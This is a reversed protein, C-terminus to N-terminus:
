AARYRLSTIYNVARDRGIQQYDEDSPLLTRDQKQTVSRRLWFAVTGKYHRGGDEKWLLVPAPGRHTLLIVFAFADQPFDAVVHGYTEADAPITLYTRGSGPTIVVNGFARGLGTTRPIKLIAAEADSAAEIQRASRARFGTPTAGVLNASKHSDDSAVYDRTFNQADVAMLAHLERRDTLAARILQLEGTAEALGIVDITLPVPNM